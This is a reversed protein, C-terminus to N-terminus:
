MLLLPLMALPLLPPVVLPLLQMLRVLTLAPPSRPGRDRGAFQELGLREEELGLRGAPECVREPAHQPNDSYEKLPQDAELLKSDHLADLRDSVGLFAAPSRPPLPALLLCPTSDGAELLWTLQATLNCM